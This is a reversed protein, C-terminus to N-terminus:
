SVKVRDYNQVPTCLKLSGSLLMSNCTARPSDMSLTTEDKALSPLINPNTGGSNSKTKRCWPYAELETPREISIVESCLADTYECDYVGSHKRIQRCPCLRVIYSGQVVHIFTAKTSSDLNDIAALWKSDMSAIHNSNYSAEEYGGAAVTSNEEKPIVKTYRGGSGIHTRASHYSFLSSELRNCRDYKLFYERTGFTEKNGVSRSLHGGINKNDLPPINDENVRWLEISFQHYPCKKALLVQRLDSLDVVLTANESNVTTSLNYIWYQLHRTCEETLAYDAEGLKPELYFLDANSGTGDNAAPNTNLENSRRNGEAEAEREINLYLLIVLVLPFRRSISTDYIWNNLKMKYWMEFGSLTSLLLVFLM